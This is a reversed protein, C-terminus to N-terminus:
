LNDIDDFLEKKFKENKTEIESSTKRINDLSEKMIKKAEAHRESIKDYEEMKKEELEIEYQKETDKKVDDVLGTDRKIEQVENQNQLKKLIYVIGGIIVTISILGLM